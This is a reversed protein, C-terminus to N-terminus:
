INTGFVFEKANYYSVDAAIETLFAIDEEPYLGKEILGGLFDALIRRFYEHRCYSLLSRSDTLMGIFTDLSSQEAYNKIQARIGELHDNFWWAAGQQVRGKVGPKSFAAAINAVSANDSPSLSFIVTKPLCGSEELTGLLRSLNNAGTDSYISDYGSDAGLALFAPKNPNRDAGFHLEMVIGAKEYEKALFLLLYTRYADAELESIPAGILAKKLAADAIAKSNPVFPLHTFGHDAAKAGHETFYNLRERLATKIDELTTISRNLLRGLSRVYEAFNPNELNMIKDPRFAPYVKIGCDSNNILDHYSLDDAPDDTTVIAEVGFDALIKRPPMTKLCENIKEYIEAANQKNLTKTVSFCRKLELMSFHYLPNGALYPLATAWAVFKEYDEAGGTIKDEAIGLGRLARWKYHDHKLWVEVANEYLRNEYIDKASLHCHYDVIPLSKIKNYIYKAHESYLLFDDDLFTKM